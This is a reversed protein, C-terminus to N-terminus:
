KDYNLNFYQGHLGPPIAHTVTARGIERFTKADLILLFSSQRTLDLVSALVVGEDEEKAQPAAVFVPEGPYCGKEAWQLVTQTQTNIKYVPRTENKAVPGRADILYLYSYSKGDFAENIRPFEVSSTLLTYSTLKRSKMSLVFRELRSPFSMEEALYTQSKENQRFFNAVGAIIQADDYVVMDLYIDGNAEFANAHHFAFFPRTQYNGVVRGTKREVVTVCTGREPEWHFNKIFAQRTLLLNMPKVVFPFETFIVYNETVAFSHMYSPNQVPVQAIIKRHASGEAL